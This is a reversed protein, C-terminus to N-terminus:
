EAKAGDKTKDPKDKDSKSKDPGATDPKGYIKANVDLWTLSAGPVDERPHVTGIQRIRIQLKRPRSRQEPALSQGPLLDTYDLVVGGSPSLSGGVILEPTGIGSRFSLVRVRVPGGVAEDSNNEVSAEASITGRAVDFEANTISLTLKGSVDDLGALEPAGNAVGEGDVRIAASWLQPIGTKQDVWFPHFAGGADAAM